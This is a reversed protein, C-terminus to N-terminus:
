IKNSAQDYTILYKSLKKPKIVSVSVKLGRYYHLFGKFKWQKHSQGFEQFRKKRNKNNKKKKKKKCKNREVTKGARKKMKTRLCTKPNVVWTGRYTYTHIDQQKVLVKSCMIITQWIVFCLTLPALSRLTHVYTYEFPVRKNTDILVVVM